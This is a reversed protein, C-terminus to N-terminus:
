VSLLEANLNRMMSNVESTIVFFKPFGEESCGLKHPMEPLSLVTYRKEDSVVAINKMEEFLKTASM